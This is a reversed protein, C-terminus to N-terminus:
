KSPTASFVSSIHSHELFMLITRVIYHNNGQPFLHAPLTLIQAKRSFIRFPLSSYCLQTYTHTQREKMRKKKALAWDEGISWWSIGLTVPNQDPNM